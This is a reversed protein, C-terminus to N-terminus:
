ALEAQMGALDVIEVEHPFVFMTAGDGFKVLYMRRDFNDVQRIIKLWDGFRERGEHDRLPRLLRCCKGEEREGRAYFKTDMEAGRKM